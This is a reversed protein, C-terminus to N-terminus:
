AKEYISEGIFKRRYIDCANGLCFGCRQITACKLGKRHERGYEDVYKDTYGRSILSKVAEETIAPDYDHCFDFWRVISSISLGRAALEMVAGIRMMHGGPGDLSIKEKRVRKFCPRINLEEYDEDTLIEKTCEREYAELREIDKVSTKTTIAVEDLDMDETIRTLMVLVEHSERREVQIYRPSSCLRDYEEPTLSILQEVTVPVAYQPRGLLKTAKINATNPIRCLRSLDGIVTTDFVVDINTEKAVQIKVEDLFKRIIYKAIELSSFQVSPFDIFIHVGKFGSLLIRPQISQKVLYSVFAKAQRLVDRLLTMRLVLLQDVVTKDGHELQNRLDSFEPSELDLDIFITSTPPNGGEKPHMREPFAYVSIFSDREAHLTHTILQLLETYNDVWVQEPAGFRRPFDPSWSSLCYFDRILRRADRQKAKEGVVIWGPCLSPSSALVDFFESLHAYIGSSVHHNIYGPSLINLEKPARAVAAKLAIFWDVAQVISFQTFRTSIYISPKGQKEYYQRTAVAKIAGQSDHVLVYDNVGQSAFFEPLENLFQKVEQADLGYTKVLRKAGVYGRADAMRKLHVWNLRYNAIKGYTIWQDIIHLSEEVDVGLPAVTLFPKGIPDQIEIEFKLGKETKISKLTRTTGWLLCKEVEEKRAGVIIAISRDKAEPDKARSIAQYTSIHVSDVRLKQSLYYLFEEGQLNLPNDHYPAQTIALHDKANVPKEALGIMIWIRKRSSVGETLDSGYWTSEFRLRKSWEKNMTCVQVNEPGFKEIVAKILAKISELRKTFNYPSIRSKDTVVLLKSSTNLPDGWVYDNISRLNLIKEIKLTGFTATTFIIRKERASQLARSTFSQLCRYMLTDQAQISIQEGELGRVYSVTVFDANVISLLKSLTVIQDDTLEYKEPAQIVNMLLEQIKVIESFPIDQKMVEKTAELYSPMMYEIEIWSKDSHLRQLRERENQTMADYEKQEEMVRKFTPNQVASALHKLYHNVVSEEKLKEVEPQIADIIEKARELFWQLSPSSDGLKDYAQLDLKYEHGEKKEWVNVAVTGVEQLFQVEDFIINKSQALKDLLDKVRKSESMMLSQLKAYTLAYGDVKESPTEFAERIPCPAIVCHDCNPLPIFGLREIAPYKAILEMIRPCFSNRIIHIVNIPRGVVSATEEKVTKTINRNTRCILTFLENRGVSESCLAVTAGARTTKHLKIAGSPVENYFRRATITRPDKEERLFYEIFNSQPMFRELTDQSVPRKSMEKPISGKVIKEM